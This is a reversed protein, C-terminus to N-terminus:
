CPTVQLKVGGKLRLTLLFTPEPRWDPPLAFTFDRVFRAVAYAALQTAFIAGPCFRPGGGFPLYTYAPPKTNGWFRDPQFAHPTEWLNAHRHLIYLPMLVSDGKRIHLDGVRVAQTARRPMAGLPPYLRLAEDIVAKTFPLAPAATDPGLAQAEARVRSQAQPDTALLYLAWVISLATTKRGAYYYSLITGRLQAIDPCIAGTPNLLRGIVDHTQGQNTDRRAVVAADIQDKFRQVAPKQDMRWQKPAWDSLRLLDRTSTFDSFAAIA